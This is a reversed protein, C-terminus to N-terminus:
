RCLICVDSVLAESDALYLREHGFPHEITRIHGEDGDYRRTECWVITQEEANARTGTLIM